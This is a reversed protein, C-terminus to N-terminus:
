AYQSIYRDYLEPKIAEANAKVNPVKLEEAM